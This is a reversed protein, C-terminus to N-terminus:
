PSLSIVRRPAHGPLDSLGEVELWLKTLWSRNVVTIREEFYDGEQLGGSAPREVTVELGRLNLRSWLYAVPLTVLLANALRSMLWFGNAFAVILSVFFLVAVVTLARRQVLLLRPLPPPARM